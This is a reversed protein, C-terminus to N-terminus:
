PLGPAHTPPPNAAIRPFVAEAVAVMPDHTGGASVSANLDICLGGDEAMVEGSAPDTDSRDFFWAADGMGPVMSAGPDQPANAFWTECVDMPITNLVLADDQGNGTDYECFLYAPEYGYGGDEFLAVTRGYLRTLEADNTYTSCPGAPSPTASTLSGDSTAPTPSASPGITSSSTPSSTAPTSAVAVSTSTATAPPPLAPSQSQGSDAPPSGTCGVVLLGIIFLRRILGTVPM